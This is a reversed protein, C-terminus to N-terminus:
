LKKVWDDDKEEKVIDQLKGKTFFSEVNEVVQNEISRTAGVSATGMHPLCTVQPMDLLEQPVNPEDEFVDLGASEIRGTKLAHILAKEDIVPGRSTNVLFCIPKMKDIFEKNVMHRTSDNLPVSIFVLECSSLLEDKSVYECGHEQGEPLRHPNHYLMRKPGFVKMKDAIAGGIGGLGFIGITHGPVDHGISAGASKGATPWKGNHLNVAGERYHRLASLALYVATTSTADNVAGPTHSVQIHRKRLPEVDIQDYGAGHHCVAKVSEPLAKAIEEDFRGTLEISEYTRAIVQITSFRGKPDKLEKIFQERTLGKEIFLTPYKNSVKEWGPQAYKIEGLRLIVPSTTM